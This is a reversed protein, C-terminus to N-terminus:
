RREAESLDPIVEARAEPGATVMEVHGEANVQLRGMKEAPYQAPPRSGDVHGLSASHRFTVTTGVIESVIWGLSWATRTQPDDPIWVFYELFHRSDGARPSGDLRTHRSPLFVWEIGGIPMTTMRSDGRTVTIGAADITASYGPGLTFMAPPPQRWVGTVAADCMTRMEPTLERYTAELLWDAQDSLPHAASRSKVYYACGRIPDVAGGGPIHFIVAVFFQALPDPDPTRDALPQLVRMATATDGSALAAIGDATTPQGFATASLLTLIAVLPVVRMAPRTM